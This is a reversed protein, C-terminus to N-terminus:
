VSHVQVHAKFFVCQAQNCQEAEPSRTNLHFVHGVAKQEKTGYVTCVSEVGKETLFAHLPEAENVLFDNVATTIHAPPYNATIFRWVDLQEKHQETLEGMYEKLLGNLSGEKLHVKDYMGCNLGVARLSFQPVAFDFLTAYEPNSAIAAYQNVLQGGASDGVFFINDLDIFHQRANACVWEMVQNIENLISPYKAKPALQYNMNVVAFGRQALNMCYFQYVDKSGYVYGGGHVNVITPLAASTGAPYYVDLLNWTKDAGYLINDVRTVDAPTTLGKDRKKDAANFLARILTTTLKM